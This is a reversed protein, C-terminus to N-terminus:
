RFVERISDSVLILGMKPYHKSDVFIRFFFNFCNFFSIVLGRRELVLERLRFDALPAFLPTRIGVEQIFATNMEECAEM